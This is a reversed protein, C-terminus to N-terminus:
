CRAGASRTSSRPPPSCRSASGCRSGCAPGDARGAALRDVRLEPARHRRAPRRPALVAHGRRPGPLPVLLFAAGGLPVTAYVALLMRRRASPPAGRRPRPSARTRSIRPQHWPRHGTERASEMSGDAVTVQTVANRPGSRPLKPGKGNPDRVVEPPGGLLRRHGGLGVIQVPRGARDGQQGAHQLTGRAVQGQGLVPHQGQDRRAVLPGGVEGPPERDGLRAHARDDVPEDLPAVEGPLRDGVVAPRDPEADRRGAGRGEGGGLVRHGLPELRQEVRDVVGGREERAEVLDAVLHAARRNSRSWARDRHAPRELLLAPDPPQDAPHRRVLAVRDGRERTAIPPVAIAANAGSTCFTM